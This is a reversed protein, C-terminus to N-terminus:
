TLSLLYCTQNLDGFIKDFILSLDGDESKSFYQDKITRLGGVGEHLYAITSNKAEKHNKLVLSEGKKSLQIRGYKGMFTHVWKDILGGLSNYLEYLTNHESYVPTQWHLIKVQNLLELLKIAVMTGIKTYEIAILKTQPIDDFLYYDM